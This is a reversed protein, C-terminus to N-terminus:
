TAPGIIERYIGTIQEVHATVSFRDHAAASAYQSMSEWKDRDALIALAAQAFGHSDGLEILRGTKGEEIIEPIGGDRSGIVPRGCAMAEIVVRGFPEFQSPVVLLHLQQLIHPVDSRHGLFRVRSDVELEGALRELEAKRGTGQTDEGVIWFELDQREKIMEAAMHLFDEHRKFPAFNAIIGVRLVPSDPWPSPTFSELDVANHAVYAHSLPALASLNPWLAEKMAHSNFIFAAPKPLGRLTWRAGAPDVPFRVHTIYPIGLIGAALAFSHSIEFGNAHILSPSIDRFLRIWRLTTALSALPQRWEIPKFPYITHPLGLDALADTFQGEGPVVVHAKWGSEPLHTLLGLLSKGGGGLKALEKRGPQPSNNIFLCTPPLLESM